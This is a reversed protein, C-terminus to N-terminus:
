SGGASAALEQAASSIAETGSAFDPAAAAIVVVLGDELEGILRAERRERIEAQAQGPDLVGLM